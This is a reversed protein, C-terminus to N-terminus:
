SRSCCLTTRFNDPTKEGVARATAAKAPSMLMERLATALVRRVHNGSYGPVSPIEALVDTHKHNLLANHHDFVQRLLPLLHNALHTEGICSM